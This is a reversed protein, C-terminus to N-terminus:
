LNLDRKLNTFMKSFGEQSQPRRVDRQFDLASSLVHVDQLFRKTEIWTTTWRIFRIQLVTKLITREWVESMLSCFGRDHVQSLRSNAANFRTHLCITWPHSPKQPRARDFYFAESRLFLSSHSRPSRSSTQSRGATWHKSCRVFGLVGLFFLSEPVPSIFVVDRWLTGMRRQLLSLSCGLLRVM